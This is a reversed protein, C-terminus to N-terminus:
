QIRNRLWFVRIQNWHYVAQYYGVGEIDSVIITAYFPIMM